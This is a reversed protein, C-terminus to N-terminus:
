FDSCKVSFDLSYLSTRFTFYLGLTILMVILVKSWLLENVIGVLNNLLEM